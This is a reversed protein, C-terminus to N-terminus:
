VCVAVMNAILFNSDELLIGLLKSNIEDTAIRTRRELKAPQIDIPARNAAVIENACHLEGSSITICSARFPNILAM